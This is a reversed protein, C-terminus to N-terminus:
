QTFQATSVELNDFTLLAVGGPGARGALGVRGTVYTDDQASAVFRSNVYLALYNGVCVARLLNAGNNIVGAPANGDALGHYGGSEGRLITYSGSGPSIAFLYGNGTNDPDARCMVGFDSDAASARGEVEISVDTHMEGGLGWIVGQTQTDIQYTGGIISLTAGQYHGEEFSGPDTFDFFDIRRGTQISRESTGCAVLLLALILALIFTKKM